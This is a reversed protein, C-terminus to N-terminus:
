DLSVSADDLNAAASSAGSSSGTKRKRSAPAPLTLISPVFNYVFVVDALLSQCSPAIVFLLFAGFFQSILMSGEPDNASAPAKGGSVDIDGGMAGAITALEARAHAPVAHLVLYHQSLVFTRSTSESFGKHIESQRHGAAATCFAIFFLSLYALCIATLVMVELDCVRVPM